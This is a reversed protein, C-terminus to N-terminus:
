DWAGIRLAEIVDTMTGMGSFIIVPMSPAEEIVTQILQMGDMEPM